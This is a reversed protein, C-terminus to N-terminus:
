NHHLPIHIRESTPVGDEFLKPKQLSSTVDRRLPDWRIFVFNLQFGSIQHVGWFNLSVCVPTRSRHSIVSIHLRAQPLVVVGQRKVASM